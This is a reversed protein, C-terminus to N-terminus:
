EGSHRKLRGHLIFSLDCIHLLLSYATTASVVYAGVPEVRLHLWPKSPTGGSSACCVHPQPGHPKGHVPGEGGCCFQVLKGSNSAEQESCFCRPGGNSFPGGVPIHCCSQKCTLKCVWQYVGCFLQRQKVDQINNLIAAAPSLCAALCLAVILLKNAMATCLRGSTASPLFHGSERSQSREQAIFHGRLIRCLGAQATTTGRHHPGRIASTWHGDAATCGRICYLGYREQM